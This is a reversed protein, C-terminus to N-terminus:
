LVLGSYELIWAGYISHFCSLIPAWLTHTQDPSSIPSLLSTVLPLLIWSMSVIYSQPRDGTAETPSSRHNPSLSCQLFHHHQPCFTLLFAIVSLPRLEGFWMVSFPPQLVFTLRASILFFNIASKFSVCAPFSVWFSVSAVLTPEEFPYCWYDWTIPLLHGRCLPLSHVEQWQLYGLVHLYLVESHCQLALELM